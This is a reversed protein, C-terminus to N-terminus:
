RRAEGKHVLFLTADGRHIMGQSRQESTYAEDGKGERGSRRRARQVPPTQGDGDNGPRDNRESSVGDERQASFSRLFSVSRARTARHRASTDAGPGAQSAPTMMQM